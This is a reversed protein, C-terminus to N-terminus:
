VMQQVQEASILTEEMQNVHEVMNEFEQKVQKENELVQENAQFLNTIDENQQLILGDRGELDEKLKKVTTQLDQIQEQFKQEM